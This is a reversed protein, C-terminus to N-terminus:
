RNGPTIGGYGAGGKVLRLPYLEPLPRQEVAAPIPLLSNVQLTYEM